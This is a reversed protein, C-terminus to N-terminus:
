ITNYKSDQTAIERARNCDRFTLSFKMEISFMRIFINVSGIQFYYIM